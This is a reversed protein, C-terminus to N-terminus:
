NGIINIVSNHFNNKSTIFAYKQFKFIGFRYIHSSKYQEIIYLIKIKQYKVFPSTPSLHGFHKEVYEGQNFVCSRKKKCHANIFIVHYELLLPCQFQKTM